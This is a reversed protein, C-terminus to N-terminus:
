HHSAAAFNLDGEGHFNGDKFEGIYADGNVTKLIGWGDRKGAKYNGTYSTGDFYKLTGFGERFGNKFGGEYTDGIEYYFVGEGHFSGEKFMGVFIDGNLFTLTGKGHPRGDLISGEYSMGDGVPGSYFEVSEQTVGLEGCSRKLSPENAQKTTKQFLDTLTSTRVDEAETTPQNSYPAFGIPWTM